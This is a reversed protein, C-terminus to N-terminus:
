IHDIKIEIKVLIQRAIFEQMVANNRIASYDIEQFHKKAQPVAQLAEEPHEQVAEIVEELTPKKKHLKEWHKYWYGYGGDHTDPNPNVAVGRFQNAAFHFAAFHNARFHQM